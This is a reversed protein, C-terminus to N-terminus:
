RGVDVAADNAARGGRPAVSMEVTLTDGERLDEQVRVRKKVPLAYGGDRPLLSTEWQTGGVRVTVPIAGWGYSAQAAEARVYESADPPLSLWFYPSPGRWEVLAARFTM